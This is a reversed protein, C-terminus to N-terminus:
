FHRCFKISRNNHLTRSTKMSKWLRISDDAKIKFRFNILFMFDIALRTELFEVYVFFVADWLVKYLCNKRM